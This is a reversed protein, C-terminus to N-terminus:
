EIIVVKKVISSDGQQIKVFYYGKSLFLEYKDNPYILINDRILKGSIDFLQGSSIFNSSNTIFIKGMSPVPFINILSLNKEDIGSLMGVYVSDSLSCGNFDNVTFSYYGNPLYVVISDNINPLHNWFFSYPRTGGTVNLIATGDFFGSDTEPTITYDFSLSDPQNISISLTDSNCNSSDKMYVEYTGVSLNDFISDSYIYGDLVFNFPSIGSLSNLQILGNSDGYCLVDNFQSTMRVTDPSDINFYLTDFCFNNSVQVSYSGPSLQSIFDTSANNSWIYITSM